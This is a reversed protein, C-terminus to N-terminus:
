SAQRAGADHLDRLLANRLEFLGEPMREQGRGDLAWTELTVLLATRQSATLEVPRSSGGAAFSARIRVNSRVHELRRMLAERNDWSITVNGGKLAITVHDLREPV